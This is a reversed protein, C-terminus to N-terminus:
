YWLPLENAYTVGFTNRTFRILIIMSSNCKYRTNDYTLVFLHFVFLISFGICNSHWCEDSTTVLVAHKEGQSQGAAQLPAAQPFAGKAGTRCSESMLHGDLHFLMHEM